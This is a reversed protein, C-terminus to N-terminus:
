EDCGALRLKAAYEAILDVEDRVGEEHDCIFERLVDEVTPPTYHHMTDQMNCCPMDEDIAAFWWYGGKGKSLEFRDIVMPKSTGGFPLDCTVVDGIRFPVGDADVPLKVWGHEELKDEHEACWDAFGKDYGDEYGDNHAKTVEEAVKREITDALRTKCFTCTNQEKCWASSQENCLRPLHEVRRLMGLLEQLTYEM